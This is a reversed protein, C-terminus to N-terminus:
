TGALPLADHAQLVGMFAFILAFILAQSSALHLLYSEHSYTLSM